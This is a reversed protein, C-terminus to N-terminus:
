GAPNEVPKGEPDTGTEPDVEEPKVPESDPTRPPTPNPDSMTEEKDLIASASLTWPISSWVASNSCTEALTQAFENSRWRIGRAVNPCRATNTM